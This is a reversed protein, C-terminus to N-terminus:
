RSRLTFQCNLFQNQIQNKNRLKFQYNLFQNQELETKEKELDKEKELNQKEKELKENQKKLDKKKKELADKDEVIKQDGHQLPMHQKCQEVNSSFTKDEKELARCFRNPKSHAKRTKTRGKFKQESKEEGTLPVLFWKYLTQQKKTKIM